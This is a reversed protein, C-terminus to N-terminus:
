AWIKKELIYCWIQLSQVQNQSKKSSKLKLPQNFIWIELYIKTVIYLFHCKLDVSLVQIHNKNYFWSIKSSFNERQWFLVGGIKFFHTCFHYFDKKDSSRKKHSQYLLIDSFAAFKFKHFPKWRCLTRWSSFQKLM